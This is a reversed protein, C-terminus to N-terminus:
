ADVLATNEPCYERVALVLFQRSKDSDILLYREIRLAVDAPDRHRPGLFYCASQATSVINVGSSIVGLARADRAFSADDAWAAPSSLLAFVAASVACGITLLRNPSM